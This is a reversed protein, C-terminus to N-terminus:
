YKKNIKFITSIKSTEMWISKRNSKGDTMSHLPENIVSRVAFRSCRVSEGLECNILFIMRMWFRRKLPLTFNFCMWMCFGTEMTPDRGITRNRKTNKTDSIGLTITSMTRIIESLALRGTRIFVRFHTISNLTGRYDLIINASPIFPPPWFSRWRIKTSLTRMRSSCVRLLTAIWICTKTGIGSIIFCMNTPTTNNLGVRFHVTAATVKALAMGVTTLRNESGDFFTKTLPIILQTKVKQCSNIWTPCWKTLSTRITKGSRQTVTEVAGPRRNKGAVKLNSLWIKENGM